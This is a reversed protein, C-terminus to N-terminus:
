FIKGSWIDLNKDMNEKAQELLNVSPLADQDLFYIYSCDSGLTDLGVNRAYSVSCYSVERFVVNDFSKFSFRKKTQVIVCIKYKEIHAQHLHSRLRLLNGNFSEFEEQLVPIIIGLM